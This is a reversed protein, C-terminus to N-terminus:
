LLSSQQPKSPLKLRAQYRSDLSVIKQELSVALLPAAVNDSSHVFVYPECGQRMWELLKKAWQELYLDNLALDPHGIFRVVPNQGTVVPHCPVRPKKKQADILSDNYAPTCFVPRSDMIVKNCNLNALMRLLDVEDQAKYFFQQHRVELSLPTPLSWAQCLATIQSLYHPSASEPFQMMTPGLKASFPRLLDCFGSLAALADSEKTVDLKHTVVQPIKFSFRFDDPVQDFWSVLQSATLDAYFSSGVEVTDFYASYEQLRRNSAGQYSYLWAVWAPHQWQAM